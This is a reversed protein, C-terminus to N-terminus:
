APILAPPHLTTTRTIARHLIKKPGEEVKVGRAKLTVSYKPIDICYTVGIRFQGAADTTHSISVFHDEPAGTWDIKIPTDPPYTRSEIFLAKTDGITMPFGYVEVFAKLVDIPRAATELNIDNLYIRWAAGVRQDTGIRHAQVLLWHMRAQERSAVFKMFLSIDQSSEPMGETMLHQYDDPRKVADEVHNRSLGLRYFMAQFETPQVVNYAAPPLRGANGIRKLIADTDAHGLISQRLTDAITKAVLSHAREPDTDSSIELRNRIEDLAARAEREYTRLVLPPDGVGPDPSNALAAAALIGNVTEPDLEKLVHLNM